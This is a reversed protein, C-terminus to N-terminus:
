KKNESQEWQEDLIDVVQDMARELRDLRTEIGPNEVHDYGTIFDIRDSPKLNIKIAEEPKVNVSYFLACFEHKKGQLSCSDLCKRIEKESGCTYCRFIEKPM